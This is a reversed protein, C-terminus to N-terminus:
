RHSFFAMHSAWSDVCDPIATPNMKDYYVDYLCSMRFILNMIWDCPINIAQDRDWGIVFLRSRHGTLVICCCRSPM